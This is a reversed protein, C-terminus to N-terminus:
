RASGHLAVAKRYFSSSGMGWLPCVAALAPLLWFRELITKQLDGTKREDRCCLRRGRSPGPVPFTSSGPEESLATIGISLSEFPRVSCKM